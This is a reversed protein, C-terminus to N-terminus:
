VGEVNLCGYSNWGDFVPVSVESTNKDSKHEDSEINDEDDGEPLPPPPPPIDELMGYEKAKVNISRQLVPYNCVSKLQDIFRVADKYLKM